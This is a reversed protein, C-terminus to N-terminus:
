GMNFMNNMPDMIQPQSHQQQQQQQHHDLEHQQL